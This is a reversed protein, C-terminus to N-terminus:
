RFAQLHATATMGPRLSGRAGTIEALVEFTGSSPDVV